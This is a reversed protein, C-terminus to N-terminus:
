GHTLGARASRLPDFICFARHRDEPRPNRLDSDIDHRSRAWNEFRKFDPLVPGRQQRCAMTQLFFRSQLKLTAIARILPAKDRPRDGGNLRERGGRV